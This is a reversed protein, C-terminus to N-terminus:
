GFLGAAQPKPGSEPKSGDSDAAPFSPLAPCPRQREKEEGELNVVLWIDLGIINCRYFIVKSKKVEM